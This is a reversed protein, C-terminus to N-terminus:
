QRGVGGIRPNATVFAGVAGFADFGYQEVDARGAAAPEDWTRDPGPIGMAFVWLEAESNMGGARFANVRFPAVLVDALDAEFEPVDRRSFASKDRDVPACITRVISM